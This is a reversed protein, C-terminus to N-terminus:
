LSLIFIKDDTWLLLHMIFPLINFTYQWGKTIFIFIEGSPPINLNVKAWLNVNM